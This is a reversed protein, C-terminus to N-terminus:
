QGKGRLKAMLVHLIFRPNGIIYRKWLRAPELALRYLWECRAARMWAPARKVNGSLFDFLAGVSIIVAAHDASLKQAIWIEQHPTGMAVLVIDAQWESLASLAALEEDDRAFGDAIVRTVLQPADQDIVAQARAAIGPAAGYLGVKTGDALQRLLAPVFDTGNLNEAYRTGHLLKAGIDVGIGDPLVLAEDLAARYTQDVMAINANNANIFAIHKGSRGAMLADITDMVTSGSASVVDVGLLPLTPLPEVDKIYFVQKM